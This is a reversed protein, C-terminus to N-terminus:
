KGWCFEEGVGSELWVGVSDEAFGVCIASKITRQRSTGIIAERM